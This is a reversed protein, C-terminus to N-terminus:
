YYTSPRLTREGRIDRSVRGAPIGAPPHAARQSPHSARARSRMCLRWAQHGSQEARKAKILFASKVVFHQHLDCIIVGSSQEDSGASRALGIDFNVLRLVRTAM